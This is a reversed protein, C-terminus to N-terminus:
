PLPAISKPREKTQCLRWDEMLEAQHDGAWEMVLREAIKPLSGRIIHLDAIRVLARSNSYRVHFHPPNHDRWFMQIVIGYFTSLTPM